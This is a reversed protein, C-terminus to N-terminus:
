PGHDSNQLYKKYSLTLCKNTKMKYQSKKGTVAFSMPGRIDIKGNGEGKLSDIRKVRIAHAFHWPIAGLFAEM